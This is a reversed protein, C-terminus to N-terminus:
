INVPSSAKGGSTSMLGTGSFSHLSFYNHNGFFNPALKLQLFSHPGPPKQPTSKQPFSTLFVNHPINM